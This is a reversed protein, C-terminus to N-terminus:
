VLKRYCCREHMAYQRNCVRKFKCNIKKLLFMILIPIKKWIKSHMAYYAVSIWIMVVLLLLLMLIDYSLPISMIPFTLVSIGAKSTWCTYFIVLLLVFVALSFHFVDLENKNKNKTKNQKITINARIDNIVIAGYWLMISNKIYKSMKPIYEIM